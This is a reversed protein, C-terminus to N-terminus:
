QAAVFHFKLNSKAPYARLCANKMPLFPGGGLPTDPWITSNIDDYDWV